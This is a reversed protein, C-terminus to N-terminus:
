RKCVCGFNVESEAENLQFMEALRNASGADDQETDGTDTFSLHSATMVLFCYVFFLYIM